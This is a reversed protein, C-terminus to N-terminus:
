SLMPQSAFEVHFNEFTESIALFDKLHIGFTQLSWMSEILLM